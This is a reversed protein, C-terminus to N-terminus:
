AAFLFRKASAEGGVHVANRNPAAMRPAWRFLLDIASDGEKEIEAGSNRNRLWASSEGSSMLTFEFEYDHTNWEFQISGDAGPVIYPAVGRSIGELADQLIRDARCITSESIPKSRPGGWGPLLEGIASFSRQANKKWVVDNPSRHAQVRAPPPFDFPPALASAACGSVVQEIALPPLTTAYDSQVIM